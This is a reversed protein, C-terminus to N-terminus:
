LDRGAFAWRGRHRGAQGSVEVAHVGVGLQETARKGFAGLQHSEGARDVVDTAVRWREQDNVAGAVVGNGKVLAFPQMVGQLGDAGGRRERGDFATPVVEAVVRVERVGALDPFVYGLLGDVEEVVM